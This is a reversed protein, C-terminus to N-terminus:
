AEQEVATHCLGLGAYSESKKGSGLQRQLDDLQRRMTTIAQLSMQSTGGIGLVSM